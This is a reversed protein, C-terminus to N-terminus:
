FPLDEDFDDPPISDSGGGIEEFQAAPKTLYLLGNKETYATEKAEWLPKIARALDKSPPQVESVKNGVVGNKDPKAQPEIFLQVPKGIFEDFDPLDMEVIEELTKKGGFLAFLIATLASKMGSEPNYFLKTRVMTFAESFRPLERDAKDHTVVFTLGFKEEMENSQYKQYMKPLSYRALMGGYISRELRVPQKVEFSGGDVREPTIKAM